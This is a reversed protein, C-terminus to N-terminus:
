DNYAYPYGDNASNMCYWTSTDVSNRIARVSGDAFCAIVQGTHQSRAQGQGNGGNYCGMALDPRNSCGLMDDANNNTDNPYYCDGVAHGATTSGGPVGFAWSGRMDTADPGVRLHNLLITNSTGDQSSLSVLTAGFNCMMPGQAGRSAGFIIAQNFAASGTVYHPGMNAAYNGRAWSGGARTGLTNNNSESPCQLLPITTSRIARWANNGDVPYSQISSAYQNYLPAQEFYPLILVLWNPGVQNENGWDNNRAYYAPPLKRYSDHYAQCGLGLQKLNNTCQTRAAAERVKQVAPVLLAILVAIIAIVVLLEILTFARRCERNM